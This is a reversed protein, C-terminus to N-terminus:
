FAAAGTMIAFLFPDFGIFDLPLSFSENVEIRITQGDDRTAALNAFLHRGLEHANPVMGVDPPDFDSRPNFRTVGAIFLPGICCLNQATSKPNCYQLGIRDAPLKAIRAATDADPKWSEIEGKHRLIFGQVGQPNAAFVLWNGVVAYCPTLIGFDRTYIERLEVGAYMKKRVKMRSDVVGDLARQVRDMAGRVADPNKCSVAVCQGFVQLGECPSQYMVFVDGLHPLLDDKVSIGALKDLENLLFQRRAAIKEDPTKKDDEVGLSNPAIAEIAAVGGEFAANWDVRLASFRSCDVPLPPLDPLGVPSPKFLKAFGKREGPLHLEYVARSERGDFGSAFVISKLQGVGTDDIRRDLGPLLPGALQKVLTIASGTDVFGRCVTEFKDLKQARQLLPHSTIGGAIANKRLQAIVDTPPATGIYEIFHGDIVWEAMQVPSGNAAPWGFGKVKLDAPLPTATTQKNATRNFLRTPAFLADGKEGVNPVILFARVDPLLDAVPSKKDDQKAVGVAKLL